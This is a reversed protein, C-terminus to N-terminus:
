AHRLTVACHSRNPLLPVFSLGTTHGESRHRVQLTPHATVLSHNPRLIDLWSLRHQATREIPYTVTIHYTFSPSPSPRFPSPRIHRDASIPFHRAPIRRNNIEHVVVEVQVQCAFCFCCAACCLRKRSRDWCMCAVELRRRKFNWAGDDCDCSGVQVANCRRCWRM